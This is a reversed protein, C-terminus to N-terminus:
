RATEGRERWSARGIQATRWPARPRDLEMEIRRGGHARDRRHRADDDFEVTGDAVRAGRQERARERRRLQAVEAAPDDRLRERRLDSSCVDSSWDRTSR